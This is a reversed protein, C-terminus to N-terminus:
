DQAVKADNKSERGTEVSRNTALKMHQIVTGYPTQRTAFESSAKRIAKRMGEISGAQVFGDAFVGAVHLQMLIKALTAKAVSTTAVIQRALAPRKAGVDSSSSQSQRKM